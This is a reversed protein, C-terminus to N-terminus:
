HFCTLRFSRCLVEGRHRGEVIEKKTEKKIPTFFGNLRQQTQAKKQEEAEQLARKEADQM